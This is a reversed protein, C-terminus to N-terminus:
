SYIQANADKPLKRYYRPLTPDSLNKSIQGSSYANSLLDFLSSSSIPKVNKALRFVTAFPIADKPETPFISLYNDISHLKPRGGRNEDKRDPTPDSDRAEWFIVSLERKVGPVSMKESSHKIPIEITPEFRFGAGQQVKKTVGARRGRKALVMNFEGITETPRISIIARAWGVIDYSGAMDYMVEHWRRESRDKGTPPKTTHQVIVYAFKGDKNVGNLGTRLFEGATEATTGDGAMFAALPNIWVLDYQATHIQRKLESLFEVGRNVRDTVVRVMQGATVRQEPTLQMKFCISEWVEGVDGDGDESQIILSRLPGNPKVGLFPLGFAWTVAGQLSMSSKGMGSSSVMIMGDGRNLFRNGLLCNADDDPPVTFSSIPKAEITPPKIEEKPKEPDHGNLGSIQALDEPSPELPEDLQAFPDDPRNM